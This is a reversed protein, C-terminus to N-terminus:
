LIFYYTIKKQILWLRYRLNKISFGRKKKFQKQPYKRKKKFIINRNYM